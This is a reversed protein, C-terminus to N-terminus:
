RFRLHRFVISAFFHETGFDTGRRVYSCSHPPANEESLKSYRQFWEDAGPDGLADIDIQRFSHSVRKGIRFAVIRLGVVDQHELHRKYAEASSRNDWAYVGQCLHARKPETPWPAGDTRLRSRDHETQVTYFIKSKKRFANCRSALCRRRFGFKAGKRLWTELWAM